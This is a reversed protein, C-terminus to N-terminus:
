GIAHCEVLPGCSCDVTSTVLADGLQFPAGEGRRSTACQRFKLRHPTTTGILSTQFHLCRDDCKRGGSESGGCRGHKCLTYRALCRAQLMVDGPFMVRADGAVSRRTLRLGLARLIVIRCSRGVRRILATIKEVTHSSTATSASPTAHSGGRQRASPTRCVRLM